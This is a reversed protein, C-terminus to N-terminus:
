DKVRIFKYEPYKEQIEIQRQIDKDRLKGNKFHHKEDYEIIIKNEFDIADVWYGLGNIYHEGGNEAHQLKWNYRKNLKEFLRCAKPNYFPANQGYLDKRRENAFMRIKAKVEPLFSVNKVNYKDSIIKKIKVQTKEQIFGGRHKGACTHCCYKIPVRRKFGVDNGCYLCKPQGYKQIYLKQYKIFSWHGKAYKKFKGRYFEASENCLGCKCKPPNNNYDYAIVYQELTVNHKNELHKTLDGGLNNKFEENCIKCKIM